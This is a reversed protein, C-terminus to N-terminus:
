PQGIPIAVRMGGPTIIEGTDWDVRTADTVQIYKDIYARQLKRKKKDSLVKPEDAPIERAEIEDSPEDAPIKIIAKPKAKPRPEREPINLIFLIGSISRKVTEIRNACSENYEAPKVCFGGLLESVVEQELIGKGEIGLSTEYMRYVRIANEYQDEPLGNNFLFPLDYKDKEIQSTIEM